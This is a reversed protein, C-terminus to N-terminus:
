HTLTIPAGLDIFQNRGQGQKWTPDFKVLQFTDQGDPKDAGFSSPGVDALDIAGISALGRAFSANTLDPGAAKAAAVFIQLASCAKIMAVYGSSKGDLDEQEQTKITKGTKAKWVQACRQLEPVKFPDAGSAVAAVLPFKGLPNTFAAAAVNGEDLTYLTPHYGAGDFDAAPIFLGVDIVTDIHENSFRQAIVNDQATAAQADNDPADNLAQDKVSYGAAKLAQTGLDLLPKNAAQAAYLGITKGKLSGNADLLQILAKISREISPGSTVWPARAQALLNASLGSGGILITAHQQTVCLNNNQLLGNLVAFVKDDETLKTCAALQDTNGIASYKATVLELKRGNIGGRDNVDDVLAQIIQAYPGHDIKIIGSKALAELDIYSFGIKITTATVGTASATLAGSTTGSGAGTSPASRSSKPSSSTACAAAGLVALACAAAALHRLSAPM